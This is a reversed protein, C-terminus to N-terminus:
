EVVDGGIITGNGADVYLTILRIYDAAEGTPKVNVVWSLRYPAPATNLKSADFAANPGVWELDMDTVTYRVSGQSSWQDLQGAV